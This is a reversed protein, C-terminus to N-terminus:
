PSAVWKVIFDRSQEYIGADPQSLDPGEFDPLISDLKISNVTGKTDPLASRVLNLIQRLSAPTSAHVMVQVRDTRLKKTETMAVTWQEVSSIQSVNIAPLATTAPLSAAVVIRAAPVVAILGGSNALLHRVAISGSM